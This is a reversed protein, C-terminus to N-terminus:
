DKIFDIPTLSIPSLFTIQLQKSTIKVNCDYILQISRYVLYFIM